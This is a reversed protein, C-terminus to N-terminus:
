AYPHRPNSRRKSHEGAGDGVRGLPQLDANICCKQHRAVTTASREIAIPLSHSKDFINSQYNIYFASYLKRGGQKQKRKGLTDTAFYSGRYSSNM